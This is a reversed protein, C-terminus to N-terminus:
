VQLFGFRAGDGRAVPFTMAAEIEVETCLRDECVELLRRVLDNLPYEELELLPAFNLVRPGEGGTGPALRDSAGDYTSALNRLSGDYEADALDAEVLYETEALPDFAAPPGM